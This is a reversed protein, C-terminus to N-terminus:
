IPGELNCQYGGGGNYACIYPAPCECVQSPPGGECSGGLWTDVPCVPYQCYSRGASAATCTMGTPCDCVSIRNRVCTFNEKDASCEQKCYRNATSGLTCKNAGNPCTCSNGAGVGRNKLCQTTYFPDSVPNNGEVCVATLDRALATGALAVLGLLVVATRM